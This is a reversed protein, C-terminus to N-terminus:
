SWRSKLRGFLTQQQAAEARQQKQKERYELFERQAKADTEAKLKRIQEHREALAAARKESLDTRELEKRRFKLLEAAQEDVTQQRQALDERLASERETARQKEESTDGNANMRSMREKLEKIVKAQHEETKTGKNGRGKQAKAIQLAADLEKVTHELEKLRKADKADIKEVKAKAQPTTGVSVGTRGTKDDHAQTERVTVHAQPDSLVHKGLTETLPVLAALLQNRLRKIQIENQQM